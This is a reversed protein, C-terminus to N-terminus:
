KQALMSRIEDTSTFPGIKVAALRGDADILYTEPVGTVHFFQSIETRLDPGNLYTISFRKLYAKAEPETDVYDVGLFVVDGAPEVEQWVTELAAAEDGCTLCWSAWFNILVAKGRLDSLSVQGGNFKTLTFNPVEDGVRLSQLNSKKLGLALFVLFGLVLAVCFLIVWAPLSAAPKKANVPPLSPNM